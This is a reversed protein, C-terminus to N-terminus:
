AMQGPFGAEPDAFRMTRNGKGGKRNTIGDMPNWFRM